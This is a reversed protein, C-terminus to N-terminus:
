SLIVRRGGHAFVEVPIGYTATLREGTLVEATPGSALLTGQRLLVVQDALSAVLNPDHSSFIVAVGREALQRLVDHVARRHAPDLHSTPEDLLLIRPDQALARAVMALQREGGSLATVPREALSLVGASELAARAVAEDRAGPQDLPGLHPARGFLVYDLVSVDFPIHEYQPVLGVLQGWERRTYCSASRGAVELTGSQPTLLGVLIHLLTTKGGGNPGLLGTVAGSPFAVSLDNLVPPQGSGYRFCVRQLRLACMANM